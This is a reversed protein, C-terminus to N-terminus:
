KGRLNGMKECFLMISSQKGKKIEKKATRKAKKIEKEQKKTAYAIMSEKVTEAPPLKALERYCVFCECNKQRHPLLRRKDAARVTYTWKTPSSVTAQGREIRDSSKTNTM